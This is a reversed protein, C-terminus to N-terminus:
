NKGSTFNVPKLKMGLEYIVVSTAYCWFLFEDGACFMIGLYFVDYGPSFILIQALYRHINTIVLHNNYM